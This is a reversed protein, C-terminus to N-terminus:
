TVRGRARAAEFCALTAAMAANLSETGSAMPIAAIVHCKERALRSLGRDEAGVVLAVPDALLDLGFLSRSGGADLGITWLGAATLADMARPISSVLAVPLRELAGAAAKFAAPSLPAARRSAMVLGTAGAAAASRAVAGVNRPDTLHDLVVVLAADGALSGVAVTTLPTTSAVMGQPADTSAVADLDDVIAIEGGSAEVTAVIAVVEPDTLRSREVALRRVRGAAAAAAVAHTGEVSDGIGVPAM